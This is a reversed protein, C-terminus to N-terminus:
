NSGTVSRFWALLELAKATSSVTLLCNNIFAALETSLADVQRKFELYTTDLKGKHVDLRGNRTASNTRRSCKHAAKRESKPASM